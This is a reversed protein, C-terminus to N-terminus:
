NNTRSVSRRFDPNREAAERQPSKTADVAAQHARLAAAFEEKSIDGNAYCKKLAQLSDDYGLSAAIIFHRVARDIRNAREEHRVLNYRATPHGGIAAEELHYILKTEDKEVGYGNQYLLSLLLHAGVDGLEAAKTWYEFSRDYDEEDYHKIGLQQMAVPDKAEVRKMNHLHIEEENKPAPHRCFPCAADLLEERKCLYNAYVCGDCILKTCCVM